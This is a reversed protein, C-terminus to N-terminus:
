PRLELQGAVRVEYGLSRYTEVRRRSHKAALPHWLDQWDHVAAMTKGEYRRCVRGVRQITRGENKGGSVLVLVSAIPLDIAEDALQTAVMCRLLGDKFRGVMDDRRKRTLKSTCVESGPIRDSLSQGHDISGVLVLVSNEAHHRALAVASANRAANGIIGRRCCELWAVQGYLEGESGQWFRRRWGMTKAIDADIEAQIGFDTEDHLTVTAQTLKDGVEARDIVHVNGDVLRHLFANEDQDEGWPTASVCWLAGRCTAAAAQWGQASRLHQCEDVVLLDCDSWDPQAAACEVRVVARDVIVPFSDFASRMQDKAENTNVMIGVAAKGNDGRRELVAACAMAALRSKGAGAPAQVLARKRRSLWEAAEVQYSRNEYNM